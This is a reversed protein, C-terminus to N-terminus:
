FHVTDMGATGPDVYAQVSAGAALSITYITPQGSAGPLVQIHEPPLRTQLQLPVTVAGASEQILATVSWRGDMSLVTGRGTWVGPGARHLDLTPTGLEPRGPLSFGLHVGTAAVPAGTDYDLVHVDFR